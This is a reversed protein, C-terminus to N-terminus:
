WISNSECLRSPVLFVFTRVNIDYKLVLMCIRVITIPLRGSPNVAGYLIEALAMGGSQGPYGAWLVANAM